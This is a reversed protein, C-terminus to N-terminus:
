TFNTYIPNGSGQIKRSKGHFNHNELFVENETFINFFILFLVLSKIKGLALNM